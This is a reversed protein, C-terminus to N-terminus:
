ENMDAISACWEFAKMQLANFEEASIGLRALLKRVQPADDEVHEISEALRLMDGYLGQRAMLAARVDPTVALGELVKEMPVGFLVDILSMMGVTFAVDAATTDNPRITQTILELLRGRTAALTLLPSSAGGGAGPEAYVLIQLWRRLRHRGVMTLAQGLTGIPQRGQTPMAKFLRLLALGLAVDQKVNRELEVPDVGESLQAMLRMLGAQAPPLRHGSLVLPKAFYYGQFYDFGLSICFQFQERTEVKEALLKRGARQVTQALDSLAEDSSQSVDIKVIDVLPLLRRVRASDAIVDDLAFRYGKAVLQEMRAVLADDVEVTELVELVVTQRPLLQVFDSFLVQANVNIFALSAGIVRAIGLEASHAIVAATATLDDTVGAPGAAANRFLLEYAYLEGDRSLIPQRALFFEKIRPFHGASQSSSLLQQNMALLFSSATLAGGTPLAGLGGNWSM